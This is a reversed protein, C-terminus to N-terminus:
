GLDGLQNTASTSNLGPLRARSGSGEGTPNRRRATCETFGPPNGIVSRPWCTHADKRVKKGEQALLSLICDCM